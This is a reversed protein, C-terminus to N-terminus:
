RCFTWRKRDLGEEYKMTSCDSYNRFNGKLWRGEGVMDKGERNEWAPKRLWMLVKSWQCSALWQGNRQQRGVPRQPVNHWPSMSDKLHECTLRSVWIRFQFCIQASILHLNEQPHPAQQLSVLHHWQLSFPYLCLSGQERLGHGLEEKAPTPSDLQNNGGKESGLCNYDLGNQPPFLSLQYHRLIHQMPRLLGGKFLPICIGEEM